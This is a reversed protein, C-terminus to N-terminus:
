ASAAGAEPAEVVAEAAGGERRERLQEFLERQFQLQRGFLEQTHALQDRLADAAAGRGATEVASEVEGLSELWATAAERQRDVAQGFMEAVGSMEAGGAKVLGAAERVLEGAAGLGEALADGRARLGDALEATQARSQEALRAELRVTRSEAQEVYEAVAALQRDGAAQIDASVDSLRELLSLTSAQSAAEVRDGVEAHAAALGGLGDVVSELRRAHAADREAWELAAQERGVREADIQSLLEGTHQELRETHTAESKRRADFDRELGELVGDLHGTAARVTREMANELLPVVAEKTGRVSEEVVHKMDARFDVVAERVIGLTEQTSKEHSRTWVGELTLIRDSVERLAEAALPIAEAGISLAEVQQVVAKVLEMQDGLASSPAHPGAAFDDAQACLQQESRRVGLAALTLLAAAAIGAFTMEIGDALGIVPDALASRLARVGGSAVLAEEAGALTEIVGLFGGLLGLVVLLGALTSSFATPAVAPPLREVRARIRASVPGELAALQEVSARQPGPALEVALADLGNRGADTQRQRAWLEGLGGALAIAMVAFLWLSLTDGEPGVTPSLVMARALILCGAGGSAILVLRTM